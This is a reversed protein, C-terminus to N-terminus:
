IYTGAARQILGEWGKEQYSIPKGVWNWVLRVSHDDWACSILPAKIMFAM